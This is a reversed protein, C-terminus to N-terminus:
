CDTLSLVKRKITPVFLGILDQCADSEVEPNGVFLAAHVEKETVDSSLNPLACCFVTTCRHANNKPMKAKTDGDVSCCGSYFFANYLM